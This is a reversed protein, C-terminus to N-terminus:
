RSLAFLRHLSLLSMLLGAAASDAAFEGTKERIKGWDLFDLADHLEESDIAERVKAFLTPHERLYLARDPWTRDALTPARFTQIGTAHRLLKRGILFATKYAPSAGAAIGWNGTPIRALKPNLHKLAYRLVQGSLRHGPPLSCYFDFLDNDFSVTRQEACTLKSAINPYSYHRALAHVVLYEWRDYDSQCVDQGDALVAEAAGHLSDMMPGRREARLLSALDVNKLRFPIDRVFKEALDGDLRALRRFFTPRGFLSVWRAPLYMGQFLYDFGHGHFVVDAHPRVEDELGVFLGHDIAYMGGCLRGLDNLHRLFHDAPLKLFHHRAHAAQAARRACAVEYNDSFSVTFCTPPEDFAALVTRSDHGGSLFHGYRKAQRDSTRRRISARLLATFEAGAENETRGAAKTFDPRWYRTKQTAQGGVALQTAPMLFQSFNDYTKDGLLKQLWLFEFLAQKNLSFGPQRRLLAFLDFYLTAALLRGGLEAWYLPISTFRDNAITLRQRDRELRLLMFQGDLGRLFASTDGARLWADAVAEADVRDNRVPAGIVAVCVRGDDKVVPAPRFGECGIVVGEGGPFVGDAVRIGAADGKHWSITLHPLHVSRDPLSVLPDISM